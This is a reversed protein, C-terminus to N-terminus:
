WVAVEATASKDGLRATITASGDSKIRTLKGRSGPVNSVTVASKDSSTWVVSESVDQANYDTFLATAKLQEIYDVPGETKDPSIELSSVSASLVTLTISGIRRTSGTWYASVTVSGTVIGNGYVLGNTKRDNSITAVNSNSTTWYVFDTLDVKYTSGSDTFVGTAELQLTTDKGMVPSSPTVQLAIFTNSKVTLTTTESVSGLAATIVSSGTDLSTALGKIDPANDMAATAPTGSSWRVLHTIDRSVNDAYVGFAKFSQTTGLAITPDAPWITISQLNRDVTTLTEQALTSGYAVSVTNTGATLSVSLGHNNAVNSIPSHIITSSGDSSRWAIDNPLDNAAYTSGDSYIGLANFSQSMNLALSSNSPTIQMSQLTLSNVTLDKSDSMTVPAADTWSASITVTGATIARVLGASGTFNSIAAITQDDSTWTVTDTLDMKRYETTGNIFIGTAKYQLVSGPAISAATEATPTIELAGFVYTANDLVTLNSSGSTPALTAMIDPTGDSVSTVLGKSGDANSIRADATTDSSWIVEDTLDRIVTDTGDTFIGTATFRLKMGNIITPNTPTVEISSLVMSSKMVTLKSTGAKTGLSATITTEGAVQNTVMGHSDVANSILATDESSSTWVVKETIDQHFTSTGDSYIGTAKFYQNDGSYISPNTPTVQIETLTKDALNVTLNIIRIQGLPSKATIDVPTDNSPEFASVKGRCVAANCVTAKGGTTDSSEWVVSDTLDQHTYVTGDTFIGMARLQLNTNQAMLPGVPLIQLSNLTAATVTLTSSDGSVDGYTAYIDTSAGDSTADAIGISGESNSIPAITLNTSTWVSEQTVDQTTGDAVIVTATFPQLTDKAITPNIPTFELQGVIADNTLTLVTDGSVDGAGSGSRDKFTASITTTGVNKTSVQGRKGAANNITAKNVDSSAWTVYDTLDLISGDTYIGTARFQATPTYALVYSPHSPTVQVKQLTISQSSVTISASGSVGSYTATITASGTSVATVGGTVSVTATSASSTWTSQNTLDETSNDSYTGTATLQVSAGPALSQSAPTIGISSLTKDSSTPTPDPDDDATKCSFVLFFTLSLILFRISLINRRM